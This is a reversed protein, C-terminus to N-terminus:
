ADAEAAEAYERFREPYREAISSWSKAGRPPAGFLDNFAAEYLGRKSPPIRWRVPARRLSNALKNSAKKKALARGVIRGPISM